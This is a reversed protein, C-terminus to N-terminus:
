LHMNVLRQHGSTTQSFRHAVKTGNGNKLVWGIPTSYSYVVYALNDAAREKCFEDYVERGAYILDGTEGGYTQAHMTGVKFPKRNTLADAILEQSKRGFNGFGPM